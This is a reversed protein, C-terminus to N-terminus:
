WYIVDNLLVARTETQKFKFDPLTELLTNTSVLGRATKTRPRNEKFSLHISECESPEELPLQASILLLLGAAGRISKYAVFIV